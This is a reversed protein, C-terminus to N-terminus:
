SNRIQKNPKMSRYIVPILALLSLAIIPTLIEPQLLLGQLEVEGGAEIVAGLGHGASVFAIVGPIIGIMTALVYTRTKMGTLAPVINVIVFPFLPVLRLLLLYSFANDNFNKEVNAVFGSARRRLSDGIATRAVLFIITAGTTASVVVVGVGVEVGFLFGGFVSLATAGPLSLGTVAIYIFMYLALAMVFRDAVFAKLTAYNQKLAALNLYEDLGSVFAVIVAAIILLIPGFRTIFSSSKSSETIPANMIKMKMTPVIM